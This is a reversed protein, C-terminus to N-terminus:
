INGVNLDMTLGWVRWPYNATFDIRWMRSRFRGCQTIYPNNTVTNCDRPTSFTTGDDDSWSIQANVPSVTTPFDCYLGVRHCTKWNFTDSTYDETTYSATFNATYDQYLGTNMYTLNTKGGIAFLPSNPGYAGPIWVAEITNASTGETGLTWRYWFGNDLDYVLIIKNAQLSLLYFNHGNNSFSFGQTTSNGNSDVQNTCNLLLYREVWANSIPKNDQADLRFVRLSQGQQRGVYFVEDGITCLNSTLTVSKYYSENRGLPSGSVNAADYFFEVGDKGFAILYNKIKTIASLTDPNIEATIFNGATWTAPTDLDSNYIDGTDKKIVFLYGDLFVVTPYTSAPYDAATVKTSTGSGVVHYWLELGNNFCIYRTATSTLFSCFGVSNVSSTNTGTITAIQTISSTAVNLSFVKNDVSWYIYNSSDDQFFGNIISSSGAKNLSLLADATGPRKVLAATRTQNENSNRDFYMNLIEADRRVSTSGSRPWSTATFEMDVTRYTANTPAKTFAM